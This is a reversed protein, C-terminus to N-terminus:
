LYRGHFQDCWDSITFGLGDGERDDLKKFDIFTDNLRHGRRFYTDHWLVLNAHGAISIIIYRRNQSEIPCSNKGLCNEMLLQFLFYNVHFASLCPIGLDHFEFCITTINPRRIITRLTMVKIRWLRHAKSWSLRILWGYNLMWNTTHYLIHSKIIRSMDREQLKKNLEIPIVSLVVFLDYISTHTKIKLMQYM